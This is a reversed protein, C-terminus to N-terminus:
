GEVTSSQSGPPLLEVAFRMHQLIPSTEEVLRVMPHRGEQGTFPLAREYAAAVVHHVLGSARQVQAALSETAVSGGNRGLVPAGHLRATLSLREDQLMTALESAAAAPQMLRTGPSAAANPALGALTDTLRRAAGLALAVVATWVFAADEARLPTGASHTAFGGPVTVHDMRLVPATGDEAPNGARHVRLARPLAKSVVVFLDPADGAQGTADRRRTDALPLALWQGPNAGPPVHWQGSLAFGERVPRAVPRVRPGEAPVAAALPAAWNWTRTFAQWATLPDSYGDLEFFDLVRPLGTGPGVLRLYNGHATTTTNEPLKSM